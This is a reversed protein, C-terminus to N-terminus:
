FYTTIADTSLVNGISLKLLIRGTVYNLIVVDTFFTCKLWFSCMLQISYVCLLFLLIFFFLFTVTILVVDVFIFDMCRHTIFHVSASVCACAIIACVCKSCVIECFNLKLWKWIRKDNPSAQCIWIIKNCRMNMCYINFYRYCLMTTSSFLFPKLYLIVADILHCFTEIFKCNKFKLLLYFIIYYLLVSCFLASSGCM